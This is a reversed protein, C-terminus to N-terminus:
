RTYQANAWYQRKIKILQNVLKENVNKVIAVGVEVKKMEKVLNSIESTLEKIDSSMESELQFVLKNLDLKNLGKLIVELNVM